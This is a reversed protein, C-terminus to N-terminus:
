IESVIGLTQLILFPAFAQDVNISKCPKATRFYSFPVLRRRRPKKINVGAFINISPFKDVSRWPDRERNEIFKRTVYKDILFRAADFRQVFEFLFKGLCM